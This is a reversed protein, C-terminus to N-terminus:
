MAGFGVNKESLKTVNDQNSVKQRRYRMTPSIRVTAEQPCQATEKRSM